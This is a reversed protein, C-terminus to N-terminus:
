RKPITWQESWDGYSISIKKGPKLYSLPIGVALTGETGSPLIGSKVFESKTLIDGEALFYGNISMRSIDFDWNKLAKYRVLFLGRKDRSADGKYQLNWTIWDPLQGREREALDCAKKDMYLLTLQSTAGLVMDGLLQGDVWITTMRAKLVDDYSSAFLLSGELLLSFIALVYVIRKRIVNM